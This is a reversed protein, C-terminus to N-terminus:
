RDPDINNEGVITKQNWIHLIEYKFPADDGKFDAKHQIMDVAQPTVQKIRAQRM